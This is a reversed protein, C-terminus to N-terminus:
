FIEDTSRTDREVSSEIKREKREEEVHEEYMDALEEDTHLPPVYDPDRRDYKKTYPYQM